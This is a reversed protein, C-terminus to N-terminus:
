KRKKEMSKENNKRDDRKGRIELKRKKQQNEEYGEKDKKKYM